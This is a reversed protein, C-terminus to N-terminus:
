GCCIDASYAALIGDSCRYGTTSITRQYCQQAGVANGCVISNNNNDRKVRCPMSVRSKCVDLSDTYHAASNGCDKLGCSSCALPFSQCDSTGAPCSLVCQQSEVIASSCLLLTGIGVVQFFAKM